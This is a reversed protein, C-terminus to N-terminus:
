RLLSVMASEISASDANVLSRVAGAAAATTTAAAKSSSSTVAAAAAATAVTATATTLKCDVTSLTKM